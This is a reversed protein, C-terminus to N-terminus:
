RSGSEAAQRRDLWSQLLLAAAVSDVRGRAARRRRAGSSGRGGSVGARLAQSAAVTTFREDVTEVPVGMSSAWGDIEALVAQAAPGVAGSLSLPLGVVVGVAEEDAVLRALAQRDVDADGTRVVTVLANSVRQSSDSLAVGIRASGPDVGLVRGREPIL